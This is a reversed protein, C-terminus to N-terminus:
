IKSSFSSFDVLIDNNFLFFLDYSRNFVLILFYILAVTMYSLLNGRQVCSRFTTHDFMVRVPRIRGTVKTMFLIFFLYINIGGCM